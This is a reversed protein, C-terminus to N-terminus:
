DVPLVPVVPGTAPSWTNGIRIRVPVAPGRIHDGPVYLNIQYLGIFGPVLGSWNVVIESGYYTPDGFYVKLPDTVAEGTSPTVGGRPIAPGKIPGLGVAYLVLHEDRKAPDNKTVPRGNNRFIAAQSTLPDVLVAPAYRAVDIPRAVSLTKEALNRVTL